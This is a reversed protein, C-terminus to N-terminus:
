RALAMARPLDSVPEQQDGMHEGGYSLGRTHIFQEEEPWHDREVVVGPEDGLKYLAFGPLLRLVIKKETANLKLAEAAENLDQSRMRYIIVGGYDSMLDGVAKNNSSRYLNQPAHAILKVGVGRKGSQKFDDRVSDIFAPYYALDWAEDHIRWHFRFRANYRMQQSRTFHDILITMIVAAEGKAGTCDMVLLPTDQWLGVTTEKHVMGYLEDDPDLLRNLGHAMSKGLEKLSDLARRLEKSKDIGLRMAQAMEQTPNFLMYVVDELTAVDTALGADNVAHRAHAARIAAMLLNKEDIELDVLDVGKRTGIATVALAAVLSRQESMSMSNDVPNIFYEAGPGFQFVKAGPIANKVATWEGTRDTVLHNWGIMSNRYVEVKADGSKHNNPEGFVLFNTNGIIKARLFEFPDFEAIGGSRDDGFWGIPVGRIRAGTKPHRWGGEAMMFNLAALNDSTNRQIPLQGGTLFRLGEESRLYWLTDSFDAM